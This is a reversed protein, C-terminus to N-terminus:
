SAARALGSVPVRAHIKTGSGAHSEVSLQGGVLKIREMMSVLGLGSSRMAEEVDFGPGSDRVTLDITDSSARLEADFHRVGSYKVANHLAEQLVRFLCLSIDFPVMRSIADHAFVVEVNKQASFEKCFGRMAAVIGLYELKSSHLEHSLAQVDATIETSRRQLERIRGGVESPLNSFNQPLQELEVTLLALRQGIDDHLERAIRTREEEQAGILRRSLNALAAETRKRETIDLFAVVAGVVEEGKRQPHSWYEAPFSTGKAHWLVEDDVHVGEGIQLARMIRSTERLIRIGDARSHHILDHMNRGLLDDVREYGLARLCAPNCFTCRGELDIGYIAEATSDLLLRLKDEKERLAEEAMRRDTVDVCSGIYGAFSNDQNFRPVGIDFVWRYEGDYRRLRYEMSFKERRDFANVYTELCAKFDDPHVGEAWGNGLESEISRGTFDLWPTNFYTCLKETDSMWILVPATNSVLRFREESERLADEAQKQNTIDTVMGVINLMRGDEDFFAQANKELWVISGDSRQVRYRLRCTANEPCLRDVSDIFLTRDDPHVTALVQQRTLHKAQDSFGLVSGYEESRIVIDTAVDWEYAYMRGARAALRFREESKRLAEEITKRETIDHVTGRLQVVAGSADRYAEGRAILWRKTGDVRIMQLDLEYPKGTRLAEEVAARLREWSEATYLRSHDKYSVAPMGPDMGAIRYLEQSWSVTDTKVEWRWSGVKALLQAETLEAERQRLAQEALKRETIDMSIGLMRQPTGDPTYFFRGVSQLWHVAGDPWVVRFEQAFEGHNQKAIEVANKLQDLDEPHVRDWFDQVSGSRDAPTMGLLAHKGGFWPNRGSQIDWEWGALKGADMALRLRDHAVTLEEEVKRRRARQWLLGLILVTEALCLSVGGVIYRRYLQWASPPRNLVISGPPLAKNALGWRNLGRDPFLKTDMYEAHFEIQYPSTQLVTRINRDILAMTPSLAGSTYLLLVRRVPPVQAAAPSLSLLSCAALVLALKALGGTGCSIWQVTSSSIKPSSVAPGRNSPVRAYVEATAKSSQCRLRRRKGLCIRIMCAQQSNDAFNWLGGYVLANNTKWNHGEADARPFCTVKSLPRRAFGMASDVARGSIGSRRTAHDQRPLQPATPFALRANHRRARFESSIYSCIPTFFCDRSNTVARAM